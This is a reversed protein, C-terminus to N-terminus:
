QTRFQHLRHARFGLHEQVVKHRRCTDKMGTNTTHTATIGNMTIIITVGNDTPKQVQTGVQIQQHPMGHIILKTTLSQTYIEKTSAKEKTIPHDTM